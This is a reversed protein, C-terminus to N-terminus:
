YTQFTLSINGKAEGDGYYDNNTWEAKSSNWGKGRFANGWNQAGTDSDAYSGKYAGMIWDNESRPIKVTVTIAPEINNFLSTGLAPLETGLTVTGLRACGAFAEQGIDGAKATLTFEAQYMGGVAFNGSNAAGNKKWIIAGGTYQGAEELALATVPAAGGAPAAVTGSLDFGEGAPAPLAPKFVITVTLTQGSGALSTVSEAGDHTFKDAEAGDFTFGEQATLAAEAKYRGGAEFKGGSDLEQEEEGTVKKWRITGTYQGATLEAAPVANNVPAAALGTLDYYEAEVLRVYDVVKNGGNEVPQPCAAFFLVFVGLVLAALGKGTITREAQPTFRVRSTRQPM